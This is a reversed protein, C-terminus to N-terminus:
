ELWQFVKGGSCITATFDYGQDNAVSIAGISGSVNGGPGKDTFTGVSGVSSNNLDKLVKNIQDLTKDIRLASDTFLGDPLDETLSYGSVTDPIDYSVLSLSGSGDSTAASDGEVSNNGPNGILAGCTSTLLILSPLLLPKAHLFRTM